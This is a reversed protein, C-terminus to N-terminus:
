GAIRKGVAAGSYPAGFFGDRRIRAAPPVGLDAIDAAEGAARLDSYSLLLRPGGAAPHLIPDLGFEAPKTTGSESLVVGRRAAQRAAYIPGLCLLCRWDRGTDEPSFICLSLYSPPEIEELEYLERAM